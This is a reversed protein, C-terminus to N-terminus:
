FISEQWHDGTAPRLFTFDPFPDVGNVAISVFNFSLSDTYTASPM